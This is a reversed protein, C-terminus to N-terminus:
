GAIPPESRQRDPPPCPAPCPRRTQRIEAATLFRQPKQSRHKRVEKAPVKKFARSCPLPSDVFQNDVSAFRFITRAYGLRRNQSQPSIKKGNKGVVLQNRMTQFDFTRLDLLPTRTDMKSAILDMVEEYDKLTRHSLSGQHYRDTADTLFYNFLDGLSISDGTVISPGNEILSKKDFYAQLAQEYDPGFYHLQGKIKKAWYVKKGRVKKTLLKKEVM